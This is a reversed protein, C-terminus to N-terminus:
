SDCQLEVNAQGPANDVKVLFVRWGQEALEPKAPGVQIEIKGGPMIRVGALCHEDLIGQISEVARAEDNDEAATELGKRDVESLPAGHYESAHAVRRAQAALPQRDVKIVRPVDAAPLPSAIFIILAVPILLQRPNM